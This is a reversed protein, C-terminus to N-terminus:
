LTKHEASSRRLFRIRYNRRDTKAASLNKRRKTKQYNRDESDSLEMSRSRADCFKASWRGADCLKTNQPSVVSNDTKIKADDSKQTTKIKAVNPKKTTETKRIRYNWRGVERYFSIQQGDDRMVFNQTRRLFWGNIPESKEISRNKSPDSKKSVRM